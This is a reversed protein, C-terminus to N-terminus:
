PLDGVLDWRVKLVNLMVTYDRRSREPMTYVIGEGLLLRLEAEVADEYLDYHEAVLRVTPRFTPSKTHTQAYKLNKLIALRCEQHPESVFPIRECWDSTAELQSSIAGDVGYVGVVKSCFHRLYAAVSCFDGDGTFLIVQEVEPSSIIKQYINDLMIFDTFSKKAHASSNKTEIIRNTFQRINNIEDRMGGADSFDGFFAVEMLKGRQSVDDFWARLNPRRQHLQKLSVYWHEYDVFVVTKLRPAQGDGPYPTATTVLPPTADPEVSPAAAESVQEEQTLSIGIASLAAQIELYHKKGINRVRLLGKTREIDLVDGVTQIRAHKLLACIEGELHLKEIPILTELAYELKDSM